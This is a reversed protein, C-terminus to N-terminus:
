RAIEIGRAAPGLEVLQPLHRGSLWVLRQRELLSRLHGAADSLEEIRDITRDPRWSAPAAARGSLDWVVLPVHLEALFRRVVEPHFRSVDERKPGLMLVVARRRNGEAARLGAVAVADALMLGTGLLRENGPAVAAEIIGEDGPVGRESYPFLLTARDRDRPQFPEAILVRIEVDGALRDLAQGSASRRADRAARKRERQLDLIQDEAGPDRVIVLLGSGREAATVELPEGAATFWGALRDAPPLEAAPGVAVPVATLESSAGGSFGKGFALQRRLVLESSFEFDVALVHLEGDAAASLDIRQSGDVAVSRGDLLASISRPRGYEASTWSLRAAVTRGSADVVPVIVAEARSEPLNVHQADRGLERGSADFAVAELLAPHLDRGFDCRLVWPPASAEAVPRGNLRLEVRAAPEAVAVEISQVGVVLGMLLTLFTVM